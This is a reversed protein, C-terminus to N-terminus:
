GLLEAVDTKLAKALKRLLDLSPNKRAGNELASVYAQAVGVKDALEVQTLGSAERLKKIQQSM